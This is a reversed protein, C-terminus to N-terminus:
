IWTNLLQHKKPNWTGCKRQLHHTCEKQVVDYLRPNPCSSSPLFIFHQDHYSCFPIIMTPIHPIIMSPVSHSSWPLFLTPHDHYSCFPIIMTPIFHSSWLPFIVPHDYSSYPLDDYHCYSPIFIYSYLGSESHLSRWQVASDQHQRPSETVPSGFGSKPTLVGGSAQQIRIRAHPRRWQVALDQNHNSFEAM